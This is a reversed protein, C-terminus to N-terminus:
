DKEWIQMKKEKKEMTLWKIEGKIRDNIDVNEQEWRKKGKRRGIYAIVWDAGETSCGPIAMVVPFPWNPHLSENGGARRRQGGVMCPIKVDHLVCETRISRQWLKFSIGKCKSINKNISNKKEKNKRWPLRLWGAPYETGMTVWAGGMCGKGTLGPTIACTLCVYRTLTCTSVVATIVYTKSICHHLCISLLM